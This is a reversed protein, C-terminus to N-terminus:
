NNIYQLNKCTDLSYERFSRKGKRSNSSYIENSKSVVPRLGSFSLIVSIAAHLNTFPSNVSSNVVRILGSIGMGLFIEASVPIVLLITSFEGM